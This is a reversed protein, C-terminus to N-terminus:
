ARAPPAMAKAFALAVVGEPDGEGVLACVIEGEQWFVLTRGDRRYVHFVFDGHARVDDTPPLEAISGRFMWCVLWGADARYVSRAAARDGLRAADGGALTVGMAGLDLVRAPFDISGARWRGEVTAAADSALSAPLAVGAAPHAAAAAAVLDAPVAAPPAPRLYWLLLAGAALVAALPLWHALAPRRLPVPSRREADERDLRDLIKAELTLPMPPEPLADRVADRVAELAALRDRCRACTALHAELERREAEDLRGDLWADLRAEPHDSATIM